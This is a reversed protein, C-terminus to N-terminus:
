SKIPRKTGCYPCYRHYNNSFYSGCKCKQEELQKMKNERKKAIYAPDHLQCYKKGDVEVKPRKQCQYHFFANGREWVTAQCGEPDIPNGM